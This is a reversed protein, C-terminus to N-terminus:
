RHSPSQPSGGVVEGDTGLSGNQELFTSHGKWWKLREKSSNSAPDQTTDIRDSNCHELQELQSSLMQRTSTCSEEEWDKGARHKFLWNFKTLEDEAPQGVGM